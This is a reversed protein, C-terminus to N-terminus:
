FGSLATVIVISAIATLGLLLGIVVKASRSPIKADLWTALKQFLAFGWDSIFSRVIPALLDHVVKEM